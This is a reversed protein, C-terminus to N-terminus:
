MKEVEGIAEKGQVSCFGGFLDFLFYFGEEFVGVDM